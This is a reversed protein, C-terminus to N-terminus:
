SRRDQKSPDTVDASVKIRIQGSAILAGLAALLGLFIFLGGIPILWHRLANELHSIYVTAGHFNYAIDHQTAPSPVRRDYAFSTLLIGWALLSALGCAIFCVVLLKWRLAIQHTM